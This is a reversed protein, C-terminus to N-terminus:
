ALMYLLIKVKEVSTTKDNMSLTFVIACLFYSHKAGTAKEQSYIMVKIAM